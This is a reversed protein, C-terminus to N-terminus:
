VIYIGKFILRSKTINNNPALYLLELTMFVSTHIEEHLFICSQAKKLMTM